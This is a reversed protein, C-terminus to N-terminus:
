HKEIHDFYNIGIIAKRCIYEVTALEQLNQSVSLSDLSCPLSLVTVVKEKEGGHRFQLM